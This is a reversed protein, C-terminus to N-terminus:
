AEIDVWVLCAQALALLVLYLIMQIQNDQILAMFAGARTMSHLFRPLLPLSKLKQKIQQKHQLLHTKLFTQTIQKIGIPLLMESQKESILRM